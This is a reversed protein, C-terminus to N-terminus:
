AFAPGEWGRPNCEASLGTHRGRAFVLPQLRPHFLFGQPSEDYPRSFEVLPGRFVCAVVALGIRGWPSVRPGPGLRCTFSGRLCSIPGSASYFRSCSRHFITERVIKASLSIRRNFYGFRYLHFFLGHNQFMDFTSFSITRMISEVSGMAVM